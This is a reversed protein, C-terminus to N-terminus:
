WALRRAGSRSALAAHAEDRNHVRAGGDIESGHHLSLIVFPAGGTVGSHAAGAEVNGAEGHVMTFVYFCLPATPKTVLEAAKLNPPINIASQIRNRTSSIYIAKSLLPLSAM